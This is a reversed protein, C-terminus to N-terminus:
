LWPPLTPAADLRHPRGTLYATIEALPGSVSGPGAVEALQWRGPADTATLTLGAGKGRKAVIDDCLATLLGAPLDAFTVGADLDVSHVSTERARMWVIETAPVTRGSNTVVPNRWQEDTLEAFAADLRAASSHLWASLEDAPLRSALAIGDARAQPSAYMPSPIGTRAWRVLNMLAEANAAVHGVVHARSWGPLLSDPGLPLAAATELFLATTDTMWRRSNM